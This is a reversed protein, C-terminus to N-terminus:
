LPVWGAFNRTSKILSLPAGASTGTFHGNSLCLPDLSTLSYLGVAGIGAVRLRGLKLEHHIGVLRFQRDWEPVSAKAFAASLGRQPHIQRSAVCSALGVM